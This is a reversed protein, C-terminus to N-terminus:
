QELWSNTGFGVRKSAMFRTMENDVSEVEDESDHDDPYDVKKLPKGEDDVLSVKGDITLKEFKDIKDAIPTTSISSAEVNWFRPDVLIPRKPGVPVGRSPQSPKKLNKEVGVDINKPCEENPNWKKLILPNNRIFWADNELMADFGDMSSFQFSFIGISSNLMSKVLGYKGWTNKVYNVVVPNAVGKGLFFGYATNAFWESIARISEVLVLVDVGNGASTFITRFNLAKKSPVGTVNAYSFSMGLTNGALTPGVTTGNNAVNNATGADNMNEENTAPSHIGYAESVTLFSLLGANVDNPTRTASNSGLAVNVNSSSELGVNEYENVGGNGGNGSENVLSTAVHVFGKKCTALDCGIM